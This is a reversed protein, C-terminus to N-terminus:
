DELLVEVKKQIELISDRFTKQLKLMERPSIGRRVEPAHGELGAGSSPCKFEPDDVHSEAWERFRYELAEVQRIFDLEEPMLARGQINLSNKRQTLIELGVKVEEGTRVAEQHLEAAQELLQQRPLRNGCAALL